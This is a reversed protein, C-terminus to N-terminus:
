FASSTLVIDANKWATDYQRAASAAQASKGQAKLAAALGHLAWGNDPNQRLDERYITEAESARGDALLAAGLLHRVPFFWDRPENYALRDEATVAAKLAAIAQQSQHGAMAIRAQVVPIAVALVDRVTNMGAGGEAPKSASLAQMEGLVARAEDARGKAALAMARGYLYGATLGTLRTDPAQMALLEDWSGFRVRATYQEAVYWDMGPMALLMADSVAKRSGDAAAITEAKRGEMAASSALFQFNHAMYMPPYYDPTNTLAVYAADAAVGRRNAEAAEEYRGVRQMIHAPMHVMHGAAPMLSKLREASALAREPHPSAELTHVYYHNAGAHLPYRALVAELTAVIQETGAAPKGDASWLKWANVNMLSEAYLTQVDPDQPYKQAVIKMAGAYAVQVPGITTADLPAASPYRSALAEILAQEVPSAHSALQRARALADFAVQAREATMFPLNYNPGVTLSVGWFCAACAPDLETARAFSRTAEDHNFGYMFRMGQDFYQQAEPVSTTIPRHFDGLGAFLRAGRAWEPLTAPVHMTADAMAHSAAQAPAGSGAPAVPKDAQSCAGLAFSAFAAFIWRDTDM